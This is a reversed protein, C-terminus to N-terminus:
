ERDSDRSANRSIWLARLPKGIDDCAPPPLIVLRIPDATALLHVVSGEAEEIVGLRDVRYIPPASVNTVEPTVIQVVEVVRHIQGQRPARRAVRREDLTEGRQGLRPNPIRLQPSAVPPLRIRDGE